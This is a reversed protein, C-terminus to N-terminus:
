PQLYLVFQQEALAVRLERELMVRREARQRLENSYDFVDLGRRMAETLAATASREAAEFHEGHEPALALGCRLSFHIQEGDIVLPERTCHQMREDIEEVFRAMPADGAQSFLFQPGGAHAVMGPEFEAALRAGFAALLRDGFGRGRTDVLQEYRALMLAGLLRPGRRLAAEFASEFAARNPLGTVPDTYALFELRDSKAIFDRAYDIEEAMRELLAMEEYDFDQPEDTYLALVAWPPTGVPLLAQAGVGVRAFGARLAEGLEAAEFDTHILKRGGIFVSVSGRDRELADLDAPGLSELLAIVAADGSSNTLHLRGDEGPREIAAAKFQGQEVALRCALDLLSGTDRSRLIATGLASLVAHIRALQRIKEDQQIRVTVDRDIGRFGSLAGHEDRLPVATSECWRLSGDRHRLQVLWNRWGRGAAVHQDVHRRAGAADVVFEFVDLRSLEEPTVGLIGHVAANSYTVRGDLALEWIWDQTSEVIARFREESQRLARETRELEDRETATRLANLVATPLRRLNDKLVYDTAGRRLADIAAEEGITGSVFIFPVRPASEQVIRLAEHGSFGPMSHDSLVVHPDFQDLADRLGQGSAVRETRVPRQLGRLARVLLEGDELSDEVLLVRLTDPTTAM